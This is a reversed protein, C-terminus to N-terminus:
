KSVVDLKGFRCLVSNIQGILSNKRRTIDTNDSLESSILHGLHLWQEVYDFSNGWRFFLVNLVRIIGLVELFCVISKSASFLADHKSGFDDCIALIQRMASATPAILVVDDAYALAGIYCNGLFCEVGGARQLALLLDDIYVCFLLPSLIGDQKVGNMVPFNQSFFGNWLVTVLQGAYINFLIRLFLPHINRDLLKTFLSCYQVRDFAKTADLFVCFVSSILMM